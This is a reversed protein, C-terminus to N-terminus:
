FGNTTYILTNANSGSGSSSGSGSGSSTGSDIKFYDEDVLYGNMKICDSPYNNPPNGSHTIIDGEKAISYKPPIQSATYSSQNIQKGNIAIGPITKIANLNFFLKKGSPVTFNGDEMFNHNIIEVMSDILLGFITMSQIHETKVTDNSGAIIPTNSNIVLYAYSGVNCNYNANNILFRSSDEWPQQFNTTIPTNSTIYLNKDSPVIYSNNIADFNIAMVEGHYGEPWHITKTSVSTSASNNSAVASDIMNRISVSDLYGM